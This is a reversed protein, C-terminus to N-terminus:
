PECSRLHQEYDMAYLPDSNIAAEGAPFPANLIELAYMYSYRSSTTIIAEGPPWAEGVIDRAYWYAQRPETLLHPELAKFIRRACKKSRMALLIDYSLHM